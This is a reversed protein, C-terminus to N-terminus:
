YEAWVRVEGHKEVAKVLQSYPNKDPNPERDNYLHAMGRLAKLHREDLLGSSDADRSWGIAELSALFSSPSLTYLEKGTSKSPEWYINASM